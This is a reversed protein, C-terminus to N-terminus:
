ALCTRSKITKGSIMELLRVFGNPTNRSGSRFFQASSASCVALLMTLEVLTRMQCVARRSRMQLLHLFCLVGLTQFRKKHHPVVKHQVELTRRLGVVHVGRKQGLDSVNGLQKIRELLHITKRPTVRLLCVLSKPLLAVKQEFFLPKPLLAFLQVLKM